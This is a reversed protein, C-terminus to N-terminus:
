MEEGKSPWGASRPVPDLVALPASVADAHGLDVMLTPLLREGQVPGSGLRNGAPPRAGTGRHRRGPRRARDPRAASPAIPVVTVVPDPWDGFNVTLRRSAGIPPRPGVAPDMIGHRGRPVEGCMRDGGFGGERSQGLAIYNMCGPGPPPPRRRHRCPKRVPHQRKKHHTGVDQDGDGGLCNARRVHRVSAWRIPRSRSRGGSAASGLV